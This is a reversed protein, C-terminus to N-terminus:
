PGTYIGGCAEIRQQTTPACHYWIITKGHCTTRYVGPHLCKKTGHQCSPVLSILIALTLMVLHRVCSKWCSTM